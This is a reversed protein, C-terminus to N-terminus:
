AQYLFCHMALSACLLCIQSVHWHLPTFLLLSRPLSLPLLFSFLCTSILSFILLCFSFLLFISPLRTNVQAKAWGFHGGQCRCACHADSLVVRLRHSHYIPSACGHRTSTFVSQQWIFHCQTLHFHVIFWSSPWDSDCCFCGHALDLETSQHVPILKSDFGSRARVLSRVSCANLTWGHRGGRLRVWGTKVPASTVLAASEMSIRRESGLEESQWFSWSGITSKLQHTSVHLHRHLTFTWDLETTRDNMHLRLTYRHVANMGVPSSAVQNWSETKKKQLSCADMFHLSQILYIMMGSNCLHWCSQSLTIAKNKFHRGAKKNWWAVELVFTACFRIFIFHRATNLPICIVYKMVM